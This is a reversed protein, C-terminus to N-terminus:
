GPDRPRARPPAQMAERLAEGAATMDASEFRERARQFRARGEATIALRVQRRDGPERASVVFGERELAQLLRSMASPSVGIKRALQGPTDAPADVDEMARLVEYRPPTLGHPELLECAMRRAEHFARQVELQERLNGYTSEIM